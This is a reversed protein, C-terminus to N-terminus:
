EDKEKKHQVKEYELKQIAARFEQLTRILVNVKVVTKDREQPSDCDVDLEVYRSCDGIRLFQSGWSAGKKSSVGCTISGGQSSHNHVYSVPNLWKRRYLRVKNKFKYYYGRPM